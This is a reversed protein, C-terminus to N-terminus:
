AARMTSSLQAAVQATIKSSFNDSDRNNTLTASGATSTDFFSVINNNIIAASGGTSNGDFDVQSSLSANNIITANGASSSDGFDIGNANNTITAGGATSNNSFIVSQFNAIAASGATSSNFFQLASNNAIAAGSGNIIGAGTFILENPAAFTYDPASANFTWGGVYTIASFTLNVTNSTGFFASGIPVTGASWNSGTDFDNSGPGTLWTANQARAAATCFATGALMFAIFLLTQQLRRRKGQLLGLM